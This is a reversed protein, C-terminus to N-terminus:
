EAADTGGAIRLVRDAVVLRPVPAPLAERLLKNARRRFATPVEPAGALAVAAAVAREILDLSDATDSRKGSTDATKDASPVVLDLPAREAQLARDIAQAVWPGVAMDARAAAATAGDWIAQPIGRVSRKGDGQDDSMQGSWRNFPRVYRWLEKDSLNVSVDSSKDSSM